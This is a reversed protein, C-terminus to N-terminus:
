EHHFRRRRSARCVALWRRGQPRPDRRGGQVWSRDGTDKRKWGLDPQPRRRATLRLEGDAFPLARGAHRAGGPRDRRGHLHRATCPSPRHLEPLRRRDREGRRLDRHPRDRVGSENAGARIARWLGPERRAGGAHPRARQREDRDCELSPGLRGGATAHEASRLTAAGPLAPGVRGDCRRLVRSELVDLYSEFDAARRSASIPLADHLSLTYIETTATDNFFFFFFFLSGRTM